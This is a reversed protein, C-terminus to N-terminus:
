SYDNSDNSDNYTSYTNYLTEGNINMTEENELEYSTTVPTSNNVIDSTKINNDWLNDSDQPETKNNSNLYPKQKYLINRVNENDLCRDFFDIDKRIQSTDIGGRLWDKKANEQILYNPNQINDKLSKILPTYQQNVYIKSLNNVTKGYYTQTGAKLNLEDNNTEITANGTYPITLYPRPFLQNADGKFNNIKSTMKEDELHSQNIGYGDSFNVMVQETALDINNNNKNTNDMLIYDGPSMSQSINYQKYESDQMLSTLGNIQITQNDM